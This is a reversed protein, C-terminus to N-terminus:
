SKKLKQMFEAQVKEYGQKSDPIFNPIFQNTFDAPLYSQKVWHNAHSHPYEYNKKDPHKNRLHTPVEITPNNRVFDLAANIAM